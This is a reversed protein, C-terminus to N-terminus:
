PIGRERLRGFLEYWEANIAQRVDKPPNMEAPSEGYYLGLLGSLSGRSQEFFAEYDSTGAYLQSTEEVVVPKGTAAYDAVISVADAIKGQEPYIHVSVFDVDAAVADPGFGSFYGLQPDPPLSGVTILHDSDVQRIAATMQRIWLRAIEDVPRGAQDLTILQIFHFGGFSGNLLEDPERSGAPAVPENMLDYCFVAPSTDLQTAVAKWFRAHTAWREEEALGFYWDPADELRYAALGTVDLYLGQGEALSALQGLRQLATENPTDQDRMFKGIQLHIRVTNAGLAKMESFDQEIEAWETEWVDELLRDGRSYNFGWAVFRNGSPSLRFHRGDSALQIREMEIPTSTPRASRETAAIQAGGSAPVCGALAAGIMTIVLLVPRAMMTM